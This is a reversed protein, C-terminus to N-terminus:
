IRITGNLAIGGSGFYFELRDSPVGEALHINTPKIYLPLITGRPLTIRLHDEAEIAAIADVIEDDVEVTTASDFGDLGQEVARKGIERLEHVDLPELVVECDGGFMHRVQM